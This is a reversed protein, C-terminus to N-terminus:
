VLSLSKRTRARMYIAWEFIKLLRYEVLHVCGSSFFLFIVKSMNIENPEQIKLYFNDFKLISFYKNILSSEKM